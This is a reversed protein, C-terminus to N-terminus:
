EGKILSILQRKGVLYLQKIEKWYLFVLVLMCVLYGIVSLLSFDYFTNYWAYILALITILSFRRLGYDIYYYKNSIFTRLAFFVIYSIGTSIAAGIGGYIPVLINNGIFNVACAGVSVWINLYSKKSVGIGSCTTESITYMIPNFILFPLIVAALRYKEGLLLAFVDKCLILTFGIFFMIVTIFRNGKKIFSTDEPKKVYHEIQMPGWLTNFTSQIIAFVHVLSMASSYIGVEYYTCYRNLAIKDLSQFVTTIGMSLILPVGFKVLGSVDVNRTDANIDWLEKTTYTAYVGQFLNSVVTALCLSFLYNGPYLKALSIALAIYVVKLIIHSTAYRKSQYTIRLLLIAIRSWIMLIVNFCLLLIILPEFEFTITETFSLAIVLISIATSAIIPLSICIKVLGKKYNQDDYNYYFRVLSQDLGLCLVMVAINTYMTFISFQGYETPDVIRTIIPTSLLGLFMNIITGFGIAIFHAIFNNNKKEMPLYKMGSKRLIKM